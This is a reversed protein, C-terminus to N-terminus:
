CGEFAEAEANSLTPFSIDTTPKDDDDDSPRDEVFFFSYVPKLGLGNYYKQKKGCLVVCRGLNDPNDVLNLGLRPETNILLQIPACKTYDEETVNDAIVINTAVVDEDIGFVVRSISGNKPVYGVIYGKVYVIDEDDVQSLECVAYVKDVSATDSPIVDEIPTDEDSPMEIKGCSFVILLVFYFCILRM